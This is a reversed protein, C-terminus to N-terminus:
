LGQSVRLAIVCVGCLSQIHTERYSLYLGNGDGRMDFREGAKIWNRIEIDSLKAM